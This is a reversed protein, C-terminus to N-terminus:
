EEENVAFAKARPYLKAANSHFVAHMTIKEEEEEKKEQEEKEDEM